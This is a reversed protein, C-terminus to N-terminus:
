SHNLAFTYVYMYIWKLGLVMQQCHASIHNVWSGVFLNLLKKFYFFMLPYAEQPKFQYCSLQIEGDLDLTKLLERILKNIDKKTHEEKEKKKLNKIELFFTISMMTIM